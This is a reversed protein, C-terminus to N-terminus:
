LLDELQSVLTSRNKGAQEADLLDQTQDPHAQAFEVVEHVTHAGPDYGVDVTDVQPGNGASGSYSEAEAQQGTPEEMRPAGSVAAPPTVTYTGNAPAGGTANSVTCVITVAGPGTFTVTGSKVSPQAAPSGPGTFSWAFDAAPRSSNVAFSYQLGNTQSQTATILGGSGPASVPVGAGGTYMTNPGHVTVMSM